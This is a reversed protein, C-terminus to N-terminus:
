LLRFGWLFVPPSQVQCSRPPRFPHWKDDQQLNTRSKLHPKKLLKGPNGAVLPTYSQLLFGHNQRVVFGKRKSTSLHLVVKQGFESSVKPFIGILRTAENSSQSRLQKPHVKAIWGSKHVNVKGSQNINNLDYWALYNSPFCHLGEM